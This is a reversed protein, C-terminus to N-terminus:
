PSACPLNWSDRCSWVSSSAARHSTTSREPTPLVRNSRDRCLEKGDRSWVPKHPTNNPGKVFLQYKAGTAPFPQVDITTPGRDSTAYVVWRGDPSFSAGSAFSSHVDGFPTAKGDQLSLTWLSVDPGKTVSFLLPDAKPSWSEPAHSQGQAPKTLREATGTGDAPQWFIALDGECDSQFTM